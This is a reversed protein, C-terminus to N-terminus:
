PAPSPEPGRLAALEEQAQDLLAQNASLQQELDRIRDEAQTLQAKVAELELRLDHNDEVLQDMSQIASVSQNLGEASQELRRQMFFAMILLLFAAAVLIILYPIVTPAKRAAHHETQYQLEAADERNPRQSM